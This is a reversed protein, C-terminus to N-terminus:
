KERFNRLLNKINEQDKVALGETATQVAVHGEDDRDSDGHGAKTSDVADQEGGGPPSRSRSRDRNGRRARSRGRRRSLRERRSM